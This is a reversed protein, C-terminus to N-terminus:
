AVNDTEKLLFALILALSHGDPVRGAEIRLLTPASVGIEAAVERLTQDRMVRWKKLVEGLKM